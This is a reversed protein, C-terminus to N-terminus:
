AAAARERGTTGRSWLVYAILQPLAHWTMVTHRHDQEYLASYRACLMRPSALSEARVHNHRSNRSSRYRCSASPASAAARVRARTRASRSPAAQRRKTNMTTTLLLLLLHSHACTQETAEVALPPARLLVSPSSQQARVLTRTELMSRQTAAISSTIEQAARTQWVIGCQVVGAGRM